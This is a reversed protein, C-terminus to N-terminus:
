FSDWRESFPEAVGNCEYWDSFTSDLYEFRLRASPRKPSIISVAAGEVADTLFYDDSKLYTIKNNGNIVIRKSSRNRNIPYAADTFLEGM